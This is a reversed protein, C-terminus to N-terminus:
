RLYSFSLHFIFLFFHNLLTLYLLHPLAIRNINCGNADRRPGKDNNDRDNMGGGHGGGRHGGGSSRRSVVTIEEGFETGIYHNKKGVGNTVNKEEDLAAFSTLM